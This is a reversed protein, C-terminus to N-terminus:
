SVPARVQRNIGGLNLIWDSDQSSDDATGPVCITASRWVKGELGKIAFVNGASVSEVAVLERGM